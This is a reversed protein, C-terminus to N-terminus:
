GNSNEYRQLLRQCAGLAGDRFTAEFNRLEEDKQRLAEANWRSRVDGVPLHDTESDVGVFFMFDPDDEAGVDFRWKALQRAGAVIGLEGSLISKAAAVVKRSAWERHEENYIPAAMSAALPSRLWAPGSVGLMGRSLSGANASAVPENPLM